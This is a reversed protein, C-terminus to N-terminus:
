LEPGPDLKEAEGQQEHGDGRQDTPDDLRRRLSRTWSALVPTSAISLVVVFIARHRITTGFNADVLGYGVVGGLYFTGLVVVVLPDTDVARLSLVATVTLVVLLPLALVAVADFASDVHLPFPAYQFHIARVPAALAVDLWSDYSMFQLYAAGGAARYQLRENLGAVPFLSAFLAFGSLGVPLAALALSVPTLAGFVRRCGAVLVAGVVALLVLAALEERLLLVETWLPPVLWALQYRRGAAAEVCVALTTLALLTALADRMPLSHFFFPFPLFLVVFVLGDTSVSRDYLRRAIRAAPLPLLVAFLGNFVSLVTPDAGYVAYLLAQVTGFADLPSLPSMEAGSLIGLAVEHFLDIDWSYPLLPLVFLAVVLHGALALGGAYRYWRSRGRSALAFLAIVTLVAFVVM